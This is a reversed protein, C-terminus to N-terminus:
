KGHEDMRRPGADLIQIAIGTCLNESKNQAQYM